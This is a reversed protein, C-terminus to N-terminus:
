QAQEENNPVEVPKNQIRHYQNEIGSYLYNLQEYIFDRHYYALCSLGTIAIGNYGITAGVLLGGGFITLNYYDESFNQM